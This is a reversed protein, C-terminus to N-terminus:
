PSANKTDAPSVPAPLKYATFVIPVIVNPVVDMVNASRLAASGKKAPVPRFRLGAVVNLM